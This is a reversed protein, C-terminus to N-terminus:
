GTNIKPAISKLTTKVVIKKIRRFFIKVKKLLMEHEEQSFHVKFAPEVGM